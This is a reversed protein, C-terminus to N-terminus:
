IFLSPSFVIIKNIERVWADYKNEKEGRFVKEILWNSSHIGSTFDPTLSSIPQISQVLSISSPHVSSSGLGLRLFFVPIPIQWDFPCCVFSSKSVFSLPCPRLIGSDFNMIYACKMDRNVPSGRGFWIGRVRWLFFFFPLISYFLIGPSFPPWSLYVNSDGGLQTGLGLAVGSIFVLRWDNCLGDTLPYIQEVSGSALRSGMPPTM